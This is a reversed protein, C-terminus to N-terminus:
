STAMVHLRYEGGLHRFGEEALRFPAQRTCGWVVGEAEVEGSARDLALDIATAIPIAPQYSAGTVVAKVIYTAAIGVRISGVAKLDIGSQYQIVVLPHSRDPPAVDTEVPVDELADQAKLAAYLWAEAIAPEAGKM